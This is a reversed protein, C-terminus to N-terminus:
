INAVRELDKIRDEFDSIQVRLNLIDKFNDLSLDKEIKKMTCKVLDSLYKNIKHQRENADELGKIRNEFEKIRGRSIFM